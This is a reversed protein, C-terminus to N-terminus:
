RLAEVSITCFACQASRLSNLESQAALRVDGAQTHSGTQDLLHAYALEASLYRVSHQGFARKMIPLGLQMQADAHRFDGVAAYEKGILMHAYGSMGFSDGHTATWLQLAAQYEALADTRKGEVDLEWGRTAHFTARDNSDMDSAHTIAEDALRMYKRATRTQNRSLEIGILNTYCRTIGAADQASRYLGLANLRLRTAADFQNMQGYMGALNSLIDAYRSKASSDGEAANMFSLAREFAQRANDFEEKDSYALGLINWAEVQQMNTLSSSGLIARVAQIARDPEDSRVWASAEELTQNITGLAPLRSASFIALLCIVLGARKMRSLIEGQPESLRSCHPTVRKAQPSVHSEHPPANLEELHPAIAACRCSQRIRMRKASATRIAQKVARNHSEAEIRQCAGGRDRSLPMLM